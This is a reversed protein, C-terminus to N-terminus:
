HTPRSASNLTTILAPDLGAQPALQILTNIPVGLGVTISGNPESNRTVTGRASHIGILHGEEDLLSGGSMGKDSVNSYALGFREQTLQNTRDILKGENFYRMIGGLWGTLYITQGIQLSDSDGLQILPYNRDSSFRVVALDVNPLLKTQKPDVRHEQGDLTVLTFYDGRERVVHANTLGYYTNGDRAILVVSGATEVGIFTGERGYIRATSQRAIEELQERPLALGTSNLNLLIIATGALVSLWHRIPKNLLM